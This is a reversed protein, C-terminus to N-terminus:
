VDVTAAFDEVFKVCKAVDEVLQPSLHEYEITALGRFKLARLTQLVKTYNAKGEGLPVDRSQPNGMEAVDKLHVSIIRGELKKLCESPDLGTRVYHGTDPCGGILKSRGECVKLVNEPRWYKSGAAESHNHIALNIKYEQCLGDLVEFVQAPPEAVLTEVGMEKAFDFVKRFTSTDAELPAYYSAMLMGRDDMRQKMEKRSAPSLSESTKLDPQEKSLPLFFAPEVCRIGLGALADLSEYFTRDRFTYLQCSLRWGIKEAHPTSLKVKASQASLGRTAGALVVGAGCGGVATLFGRRTLRDMRM